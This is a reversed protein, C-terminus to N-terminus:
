RGSAVPELDDGGVVAADPVILAGRKREGDPGMGQKGTKGHEQVGQQGADGEVQQSPPVEAPRFLLGVQFVFPLQVFGDGMQFFLFPVVPVLQNGGQRILQFGRERADAELQLFHLGGRGPGPEGDELLVVPHELADCCAELLHFVGEPAFRFRGRLGRQLLIEECPQVPDDVVVDGIRVEGDSEEGLLHGDGAGAEEGFHFFEAPFGRVVQDVLGPQVCRGGEQGFPPM